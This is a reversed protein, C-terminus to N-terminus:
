LRGLLDEIRDLLVPVQDLGEGFSIDFVPTASTLALYHTALRRKRDADALNFDHAHALVARFARPPALRVVGVIESGAVRRLVCLAAVPVPGVAPIMLGPSPPRYGLFAAAPPDLRVEFPLPLARARGGSLDLGLADDAWLAYGRRSMGVATTSKGTGSVGCFGVVGRETVVASAHLVEFGQLQLVRPVVIRQVAAQVRTPSAGGAALAPTGAGLRFTGLGPV